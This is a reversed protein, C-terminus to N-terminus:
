YKTKPYRVEPVLVTYQYSVDMALSTFQRRRATIHIENKAILALGPYKGLNLAPLYTVSYSVYIQRTRKARDSTSLICCKNKSFPNDILKRGIM